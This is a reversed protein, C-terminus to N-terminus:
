SQFIRPMRRSGHWEEYRGSLPLRSRSALLVQALADALKFDIRGQAGEALLIKTGGTFFEPCGCEDTQLHSQRHAILSQYPSCMTSIALSNAATGNFAFFVECDTEFFDRIAAVAQETWTDGGYSGVCGLNARLLSEVVAPSMGAANDSAFAYSDKAGM